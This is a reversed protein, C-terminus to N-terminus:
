RLDSVYLPKWRFGYPSVAPLPTKSPTRQVRQTPATSRRQPNNMGAPPPPAPQVKVWECHGGHEPGRNGEYKIEVLLGPKCDQPSGILNTLRYTTRDLWIQTRDSIVAQWNRDPGAVVMTMRRIDISRIRGIVTTKGSLGPSKGIPIYIETAKQAHAHGVPWLLLAAAIVILTRM